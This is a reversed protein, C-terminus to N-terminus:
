VVDSVFHIHLKHMSMSPYLITLTWLGGGVHSYVDSM